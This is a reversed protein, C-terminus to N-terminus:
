PTIAPIGVCEGDSNAGILITGSNSTAFAAIEKALERANDPFTRMYELTQGEGQACLIPLQKSTEEDIWPYSQPDEVMDTFLGLRLKLSHSLPTSDESRAIFSDRVSPYTVQALYLTARFASAPM